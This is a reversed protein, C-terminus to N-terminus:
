CFIRVVMEEVVFVMLIEIVFKVIIGVEVFLLLFCLSVGLFCLFFLLVVVEVGGRILDFDDVVVILM